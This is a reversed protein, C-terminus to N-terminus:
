KIKQIILAGLTVLHKRPDRFTLGLWVDSPFQSTVERVYNSFTVDLQFVYNGVSALKSVPVEVLRSTVLFSFPLHQADNMEEIHDLLDTIPVLWDVVFSYPVIDWIDSLRPTLKLVNLVAQLGDRTSTDPKFGIKANFKSTGSLGTSTRCTSSHSGRGILEASSLNYLVHGWNGRLFRVLKAVERVNMLGTQIVYKWMLHFNALWKLSAWPTHPLKTLRRLNRLLQLPQAIDNVNELWNTNAIVLNDIAAFISADRGNSDAKVRRVIDLQEGLYKTVVPIDLAVGGTFPSTQTGAFVLSQGAEPFPAPGGNSINACYGTFTDYQVVGNYPDTSTFCQIEWWAERVATSVHTPDEDSWLESWCQMHLHCLCLADKVELAIDALVTTLSFESLIEHVYTGSTFPLVWIDEYDFLDAIQTGTNPFGNITGEAYSHRLARENFGGRQLTGGQNMGEM